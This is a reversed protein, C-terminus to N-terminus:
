DLLGRVSPRKVALSSDPYGNLVLWEKQERPLKSYPITEPHERLLDAFSTEAIRGKFRRLVGSKLLRYVAARSLGLDSAVQKVTLPLSEFEEDSSKDASTTCHRQLYKRVATASRQSADAGERAAEIEAPAWRPKERWPRQGQPVARRIFRRVADVSRGLEEALKEVPLRDESPQRAWRLVRQAEKTTWNKM